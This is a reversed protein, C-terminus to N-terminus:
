VKKYEYAKLRKRALSITEEDFLPHWKPNDSVVAEVTLDLRQREWLATYGDSPQNSHILKIATAKGRHEHLMNLFLTPTYGAEDKARRYISMMEKDFDDELGNSNM